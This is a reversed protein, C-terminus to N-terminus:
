YVIVRRPHHGFRQIMRSQRDLARQLRLRERIQLRGDRLASRELMAIRRQGQALRRIEARTLRGERDVRRIRAEQRIQRRDVSSRHPHAEAVSGGLALAIVATVLFRNTGKM